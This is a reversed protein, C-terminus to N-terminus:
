ELELDMLRGRCERRLTRVAVGLEAALTRVSLREGAVVRSVILSLRVDLRDHRREPQTM